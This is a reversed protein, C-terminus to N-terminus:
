EFNFDTCNLQVVRYMTLQSFRKLRQGQSGLAMSEKVIKRQYSSKSDNEFFNYQCYKSFVYKNFDKFEEVREKFKSLQMCEDWCRRLNENIIEDGAVKHWGAESMNLERIQAYELIEHPLWLMKYVLNSYESTGLSSIFMKQIAVMKVSRKRVQEPPKNLKHAIHQLVTDMM